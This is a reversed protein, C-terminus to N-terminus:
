NGTPLNVTIQIDTPGGNYM